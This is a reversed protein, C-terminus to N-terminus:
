KQEEYRDEKVDVNVTPEDLGESMKPGDWIIERFKKGMRLDWLELCSEQRYSGTLMTFGDDRFDIADGCIHPGLM